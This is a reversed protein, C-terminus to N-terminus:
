KFNTVGELKLYKELVKVLKVQQLKDLRKSKEFSLEKKYAFNLIGKKLSHQKKVIEKTM